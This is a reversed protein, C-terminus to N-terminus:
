LTSDDTGSCTCGVGDGSDNSQKLQHSYICKTLERQTAATHEPLRFDGVTIMKVTEVFSKESKSELWPNCSQTSFSPSVLGCHTQM